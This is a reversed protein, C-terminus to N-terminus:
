RQSVIGTIVEQLKRLTAPTTGCCGGVLRAGATIWEGASTTYAEDSYYEHITGDIEPHSKGANAYVGFPLTANEALVKVAEGALPLTLCNVMVAAAGEDEVMAIAESLSGGSWLLQNEDVLFSVIVALGNNVAAQLALRAEELNIQTEVLALDAGADKLWSALLNYGERAVKKGPYKEPLYCDDMPAMSGAVLAKGGSATLALEVAKHTAHEASSPNLGALRYAYATTRFTNATIIKAGAEVYENHIQGILDGKTDLAGASWLPLDLPVGRRQLETGLAGDMMVIQRSNFLDGLNMKTLM